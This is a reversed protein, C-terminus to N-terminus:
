LVEEYIYLGVVYTCFIGGLILVAPLGILFGIVGGAALLTYSM